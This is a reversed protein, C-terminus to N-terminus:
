AASSETRSFFFPKEMLLWSSLAFVMSAFVPTEMRANPSFIEILTVGLPASEQSTHTYESSATGASLSLPFFLALTIFTISRSALARRCVSPGRGM